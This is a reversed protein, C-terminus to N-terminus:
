TRTAVADTSSVPIEPKHRRAGAKALPPVRIRQGPALRQGSKARAGDVRIQGTRLLRELHGHALGPLRRKFWRDLRIDAESDSVEFTRVNTM